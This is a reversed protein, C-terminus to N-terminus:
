NEVPLLPQPLLGLIDLGLLGDAQAPGDKLGAVLVNELELPGAVLRELRYLDLEVVGNATQAHISRESKVAGLRRLKTVTVATITAGTDILMQLEAESVPTTVQMSTQLVGGRREIPLSSTRQTIQNQLTDIQAQSVGNQGMERLLREASTLDDQRLLWLALYYRHLDYNSEQNATSQFFDIAEAVVRVPDASWGETFRNHLDALLADIRTRARSLVQPDLSLNRVALYESIARRPQATEAYLDALLMRRETAAPESATLQELLTIAEFRQGARIAADIQAGVHTAPTRAPIEAPRRQEPRVTEVAASPQLPPESRWQTGLYFSGASCLAIAVLWLALPTKAEAM